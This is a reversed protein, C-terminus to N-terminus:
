KANTQLKDLDRLLQKVIQDAADASAGKYKAGKSEKTTAWVVDGDAAVLRVALRADNITETSAQSDETAMHHAVVSGSDGRQSGAAGAVSTAEGIAHLEQSTKELGNGRLIADAKDKNETVIFRKSEALANAVMAQLQKSVPDDGFSDVYIRRVKLLKAAIEPDIKPAATTETPKVGQTSPPTSSQAALGIMLLAQALIM